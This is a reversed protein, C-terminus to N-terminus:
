QYTGQSIKSSVKGLDFHNLRSQNKDHGYIREQGKSSWSEVEKTNFGPKMHCSNESTMRCEHDLTHNENMIQPKEPKDQLVGQLM